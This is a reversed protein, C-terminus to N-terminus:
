LCRPKATSSLRATPKASSSDSSAEITLIVSEILSPDPPFSHITHDKIEYQVELSQVYDSIVRPDEGEVKRVIRTCSSDSNDIYYNVLQMKIVQSNVPYGGPPWHSHGSIINYTSGTGHYINTGEIGTIQFLNAFPGNTVAILDGVVFDAASNVEITTSPQLMVASLTTEVDDFQGLITLSGSGDATSDPNVPYLTLSDGSATSTVVPIALGSGAMRIERVLFDLSARANQRAEIVNYTKERADENRALIGLLVGVATLFVMGAIMLEILTFGRQNLHMRGMPNSKHTTM